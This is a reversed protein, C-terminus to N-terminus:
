INLYNCGGQRSVYLGSEQLTPRCIVFVRKIYNGLKETGAVIYNM